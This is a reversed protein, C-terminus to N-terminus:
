QPTLTLCLQELWALTKEPNPVGGDKAQAARCDLHTAGKVKMVHARVIGNNQTHTLLVFGDPLAAQKAVVDKADLMADRVYDEITTAPISAFSVMVSPESFYDDVDARWEQAIDGGAPGDLKMGAPLKITFAAKNVTGKTVQDIPKGSWDGGPGGSGGCAVLFTVLAIRM